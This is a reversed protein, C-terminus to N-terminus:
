ARSAFHAARNCYFSRQENNLGIRVLLDDLNAARTVDVTARTPREAFYRMTRGERVKRLVLGARRIAHNFGGTKAWGTAARIDDTTCGEPRSALEVCIASKGTLRIPEPLTDPTDSNAAYEVMALCFRVWNEVKDANCTGSHQRFEVTGHRHYAQLNLKIYRSGGSIQRAVDTVSRCNSLDGNLLSRCYGGNRRSPPMFSDIHRENSRYLEALLAVQGGNLEDLSVHAHFGCTRRVTCGNEDLLDAVRRATQIGDEGSLVPSVLECGGPVSADHVIKWHPRTAHNYGEAHTEIGARRLKLKSSDNARCGAIM